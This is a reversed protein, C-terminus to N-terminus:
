SSIRVGYGGADNGDVNCTLCLLFFSVFSLALNARILILNNRLLM